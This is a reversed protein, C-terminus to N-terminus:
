IRFLDRMLGWFGGRLWGSLLGCGLTLLAGGILVLIRFEEAILFFCATAILLGFVAGCGM